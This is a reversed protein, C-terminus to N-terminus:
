CRVCKVESYVAALVEFWTNMVTYVVIWWKDRDKALNIWDMGDSGGIMNREYGYSYLEGRGCCSLMCPLPPLAGVTRLTPLLHFGTTLAVSKGSWGRSIVGPIWQVSPQTSRPLPRPTQLLSFDNAGLPVWVGSRGAQLETVIGVSSDWSM